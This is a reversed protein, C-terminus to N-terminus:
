ARHPALHALWDVGCQLFSLLARPNTTVVSLVSFAMQGILVNLRVRGLTENPILREPDNEGHHGPIKREPLYETEGRGCQHGTVNAQEFMSRVHRLARQGNFIDKTASTKHFARKLSQQNARVRHLCHQLIWSDDCDR